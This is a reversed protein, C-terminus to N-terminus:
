LVREFKFCIQPDSYYKDVLNKDGTLLYMEYAMYSKEYDTMVQEVEEVKDSKVALDYLSVIDINKFDINDDNIELINRLKIDRIESLNDDYMRAKSDMTETWYYKPIDNEMALTNIAIMSLAMSVSLGFTCIIKPYRRIM